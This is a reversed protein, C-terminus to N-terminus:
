PGIYSPFSTELAKELEYGSFAAINKDNLSSVYAPNYIIDLKYNGIVNITSPTTANGPLVSMSWGEFTSKTECYYYICGKNQSSYYEDYVQFADIRFSAAKKYIVKGPPNFYGSHTYNNCSSNYNTDIGIYECGDYSVIGFWNYYGSINFQKYYDCNSGCSESTVNNYSASYNVEYGAAPPNREYFTCISDKGTSSSIATGIAGGLSRGQVITITCATDNQLNAATQRNTLLTNSSVVAYSAKLTKKRGSSVVVKCIAKNPNSASCGSWTVFDYTHGDLVVQSPATVVTDISGSNSSCVYPTVKHLKSSDCIPDGTMSIDSPASEIDLSTVATYTKQAISSHVTPPAKYSAIKYGVFGILVLAVALVVLLQLNAIVRQNTKAMNKYYNIKIKAELPM